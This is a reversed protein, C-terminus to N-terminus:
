CSYWNYSNSCEGYRVVRDWCAGFFFKLQELRFTKRAKDVFYDKDKFFIYGLIRWMDNTFNPYYFDMCWRKPAPPFSGLMLMKCGVPLFPEFPHREVESM